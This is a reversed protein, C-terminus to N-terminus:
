VTTKLIYKVNLVQGSAVPTDAVVDRLHLYSGFTLNGYYTGGNLSYGVLGIERVTISATSNNAFDRSLELLIDSGVVSPPTLAGQIAHTLQGTGSGHVIPAQLNYQNVAFPTNSTGLLIGRTVDGASALVHV